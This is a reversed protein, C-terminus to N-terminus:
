PKGTIRVRTKYTKRAQPAWKIKLGQKELYLSHQAGNVALDLNLLPITKEHHQSREDDARDMERCIKSLRQETRSIQRETLTAANSQTKGKSGLSVAKITLQILRMSAAMRQGNLKRERALLRASDYPVTKHGLKRCAFLQGLLFLTQQLNVREAEDHVGVKQTLELLKKPKFYLPKFIAYKKSDLMRKGQELGQRDLEIGIRSKPTLNQLTKLMVEYDPHSVNHFVALVRANM